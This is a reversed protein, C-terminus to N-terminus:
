RCCPGTRVAGLGRHRHPSVSNVRIPFMPSAGRACRRPRRHHRGAGHGGAGTPAAPHARIARRLAPGSGRQRHLTRVRQGRGRGQGADAVPWSNFYAKSILPDHVALEAIGYGLNIDPYFGIGAWSRVGCVQGPVTGACTDSGVDSGLLHDGVLHEVMAVPPTVPYSTAAYSNIGVGALVLFAGQAGVLGAAALIAARDPRGTTRGSRRSRWALLPLILALAVLVLVEARPWQLASQRVAVGSLPPSAGQAIPGLAQSKDWMVLVVAGIVATSVILGMQTVRQRWRSLLVRTRSRGAGGGGTRVPRADAAPRSQRPRCCPYPTPRAGRRQPRLCDSPHGPGASRTRGRGTPALRRRPGCRGPCPRHDGRSAATEFYDAPGFYSALPARASTIPLGDYGQAFLSPSRTCPFAPPPRRGTACRSASSPWARCGCRHSLALGGALGLGLGIIGRLDVRRGVVLTAVGTVGLFIALGIAVLVDTEPFGGYVAFAVCFSLLAVAAARRGPRARYVLVAAAAIWAAWALPGTTAWGLWGAFSGSLM